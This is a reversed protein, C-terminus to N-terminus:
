WTRISLAEGSTSLPRATSPVSVLVSSCGFSSEPMQMEGRRLMVTGAVSSTTLVRPRRLPMRTTAASRLPSQDSMAPDRHDQNIQEVPKSERDAGFSEAGRAVSNDPTNQQAPFGPASDALISKSTTELVALRFLTPLTAMSLLM